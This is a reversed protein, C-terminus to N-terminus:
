CTHKSVMAVVVTVVVTVMVTVVVTVRGCVLRPIGLFKRPSPHNESDSAM